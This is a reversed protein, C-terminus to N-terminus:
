GTAQSPEGLHGHGKVRVTVLEVAPVCGNWGLENAVRERSLDVGFLIFLYLSESSYEIIM